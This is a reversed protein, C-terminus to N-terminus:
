ESNFLFVRTRCFEHFLSEVEAIPGSGQMLPGQCGALQVRMQSRLVVESEVM